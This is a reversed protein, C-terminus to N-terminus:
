WAVDTALSCDLPSSSLWLETLLWVTLCVDCGKLGPALSKEGLCDWCYIITLNWFNKISNIESARTKTNKRDGPYLPICIVSIFHFSILIRITEWSESSIVKQPPSPSPGPVIFWVFQSLSLPPSLSHTSVMLVSCSYLCNNRTIM